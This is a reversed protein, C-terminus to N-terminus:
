AVRLVEIHKDTRCMKYSGAGWKNNAWGAVTSQFQKTALAPFMDLPIQAVDGVQLSGFDRNLGGTIAGYPYHISRKREKEAKVPKPEAAQLAGFELGNNTIIKYQLPLANLLRLATNLTNMQVESLAAANNKDTGNITM